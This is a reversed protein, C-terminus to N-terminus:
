TKGADGRGGARHEPTAVHFRTGRMDRWRRREPVLLSLRSLWSAVFPFGILPRGRRWGALIRDAADNASVAGPRPGIHIRAMPTDVFGPCAVVVRVGEDALAHRLALGYSLLGAKSASYAPADPLPVFAALSSVLIIDGRRRRRMGPLVAAVSEMAALLNTDITRRADAIAEIPEDVGRGTLIGASVVLMDIAREREAAELAARLSESDRVDLSVSRTEGGKAACRDAVAALRESDRGMLRLLRGPSALREALAAGIGSSAGTIVISTPQTV